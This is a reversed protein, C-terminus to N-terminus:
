GAKKNNNNIHRVTKEPIEALQAVIADSVAHIASQPMSYIIATKLDRAIVFGSAAKINGASLAGNCGM